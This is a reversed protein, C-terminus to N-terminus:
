SLKTLFTIKWWTYYKLDWKQDNILKRNTYHNQFMEQVFNKNETLDTITNELLKQDNIGNRGKSLLPLNPHKM